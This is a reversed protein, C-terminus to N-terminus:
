LVFHDLFFEGRTEAAWREFTGPQVEKGAHLQVVQFCSFFPNHFWWGPCRIWPLVDFLGCSESGHTSYPSARHSRDTPSSKINKLYSAWHNILFGVKVPLKSTACSVFILAYGGNYFFILSWWVTGVSLLLIVRNICLQNTSM